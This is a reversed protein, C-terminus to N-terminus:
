SRLTDLIVHMKYVWSCFMPAWSVSFFTLFADIFQVTHLQVQKIERGLAKLDGNNHLPAKHIVRFKVSIFLHENKVLSFTRRCTPFEVTSIYSERRHVVSTIKKFNSSLSKYSKNFVSPEVTSANGHPFVEAPLVIFQQPQYKSGLQLFFFFFFLTKCRM